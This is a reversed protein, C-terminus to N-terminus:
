NNDGDPWIEPEISCIVCCQASVAVHHAHFEIGKEPFYMIYLWTEYITLGAHLSLAHVYMMNNGEWRAAATFEFTYYGLAYFIPVLLSTFLANLSQVFSIQDKLDWAMFPGAPGKSGKEAKCTSVSKRAWSLLLYHLVFVVALWAVSIVLIEQASAVVEAM